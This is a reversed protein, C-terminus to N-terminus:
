VITFCAGKTYWFCLWDITDLLDDVDIEEKHEENELITELKHIVCKISQGDVLEDWFAYKLIYWQNKFPILPSFNNDYYWSQRRAKLVGINQQLKLPHKKIYSRDQRLCAVLYKVM